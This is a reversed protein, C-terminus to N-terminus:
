QRRILAAVGPVSIATPAVFTATSPLNFASDMQLFGAMRLFGASATVQMYTNTSDAALALYYNGRGIRIPSGPTHVVESSVVRAISGSSYIRNGWQDYLGVDFNGGGTAGCGVVFKYITVADSVRVPMFMARNASSWATSSASATIGSSTIGPGLVGMEDLGLKSIRGFESM